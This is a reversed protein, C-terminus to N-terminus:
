LICMTSREGTSILIPPYPKKYLILSSTQDQSTYNFLNIPYRLTGQSFEQLIIPAQIAYDPIM